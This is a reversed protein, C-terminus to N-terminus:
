CSVADRGCFVKTIAEIAANHERITQMESMEARAAIDRWKFRCIYRWTIVARGIPSEIVDALTKIDRELAILEIKSKTMSEELTLIDVALDEGRRINRSKTVGGVFSESFGGGAIETARLMEIKEKIDAIKSDLVFVRTLHNKVNKASTM